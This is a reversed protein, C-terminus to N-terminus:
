QGVCRSFDFPRLGTAEVLENNLQTYTTDGRRRAVDILFVRGAEALENWESQERGYSTMVCLTAVAPSM